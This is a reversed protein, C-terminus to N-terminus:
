FQRDYLILSSVLAKRFANYAKHCKETESLAAEFDIDEVIGFNLSYLDCAIGKQKLLM